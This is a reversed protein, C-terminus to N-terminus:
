LEFGNNDKCFKMFFRILYSYKDNQNQDKNHKIITNKNEMQIKLEKLKGNIYLINGKIKKIEDRILSYKQGFM